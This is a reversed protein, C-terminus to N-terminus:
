RSFGGLFQLREPSLGDIADSLESSLDSYVRYRAIETSNLFMDGYTTWTTLHLMAADNDSYHELVIFNDDEDTCWWHALSGSEDKTKSTLTEMSKKFLEKDTIKGELSWIIDSTHDRNIAKPKTFGGYFSMYHPNLAILADSIEPPVDGLVLCRGITAAEMFIDNYEGWAQLHTMAADQNIYCDIDTYRNGDESRSWWYTTTGKEGSAAAIRNNIVDKFKDESLIEGENIWIVTNEM